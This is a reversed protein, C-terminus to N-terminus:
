PPLIIQVPLSHNTTTGDGLEGYYNYGFGWVSGDTKLVLSHASGASVSEVNTMIRVPIIRTTTTGDGVSGDGNNGSAWLTSDAKLFLSFGLGDAGASMGIVDNMVQVPASSSNTTGDGFQGKDNEGCAWLTNDTKLFLSHNYDGTAVSQVQSMIQIPLSGTVYTQNGLAGYNFGCAWLMNDTKIIFSLGYFGGAAMSKVNPMISVPSLYSGSAGNGLQGYQDNGCAWLSGDTKLILSYQTLGARSAVMSQIGSMIQVPSFRNITTGDGLQGFQNSGCAWLTGDTKLILSHTSGASMDKVGGMVKVPVTKRATDGVGLQGESNDGCAWLVGDSKLFLSYYGGSSIKIIRLAVNVQMGCVGRNGDDDTVALSCALTQESSPASFATDMNGTIRWDGAGIKWEWTVFSGFLQTASGHLSIPNGAVVNIIPTYAAPATGNGAIRALPVDQIIGVSQSDAWVTGGADTVNVYVTNKGVKNWSFIMSDKGALSFDGSQKIVSDKRNLFWDMRNIKRTPNQFNLCFKITDNISALGSITNTVTWSFTTIVQSSSIIKVTDGPTGGMPSENGSANISVVRYEYVGNVAVNSDYYITTTKLVPTQSIRNFNQKNDSRYINYGSILSTDAKVWNLIVTQKLTDYSIMLNKPSPIGKFPLVITDLNTTDGSKVPVGTTDLVGYNELSPLFRLAYKGKALM